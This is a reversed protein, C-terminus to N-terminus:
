GEITEVEKLVYSLIYPYIDKESIVTVEKNFLEELEFILNNFNLFPLNQKM